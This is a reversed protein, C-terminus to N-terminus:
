PVAAISAKTASTPISGVRTQKHPLRSEMERDGCRTSPLRATVGREVALVVPTRLQYATVWRGRPGRRSGLSCAPERTKTGGAPNSGAGAQSLVLHGELLRLHRKTGRAPNSGAYGQKFPLRGTRYVFAAVSAPYHAQPSDREM